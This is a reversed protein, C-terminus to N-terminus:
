IQTFRLCALSITSSCGVLNLHGRDAILCMLLCRSGARVQDLLSIFSMSVHLRGFDVWHDLVMDKSPQIEVSTARVSHVSRLM